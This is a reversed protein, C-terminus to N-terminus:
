QVTAVLTDNLTRFPNRHYFVALTSRYIAFFIKSSPGSVGECAVLKHLTTSDARARRSHYWDKSTRLSVKKWRGSENGMYSSHANKGIAYGVCNKCLPLVRMILLAKKVHHSNSQLLWWSVKRFIDTTRSTGENRVAMNAGLKLTQIVTIGIIKKQRSELCQTLEVKLNNWPKFCVDIM